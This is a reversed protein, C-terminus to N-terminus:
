YYGSSSRRALTSYSLAPTLPTEWKTMLGHCKAYRENKFRMCHECKQCYFQIDRSQGQWYYKSTLLNSMRERGLHGDTYHHIEDMVAQQQEEKPLVVCWRGSCPPLSLPPKKEKQVRHSILQEDDPGRLKLYGLILSCKNSLSAMAKPSQARM